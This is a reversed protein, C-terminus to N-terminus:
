LNRMRALSKVKVSGFFFWAPIEIRANGKSLGLLFPAIQSYIVDILVLWIVPVVLSKLIPTILPTLNIHYSRGVFFIYRTSSVTKTETGM